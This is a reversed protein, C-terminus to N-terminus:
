AVAAVDNVIHQASVFRLECARCIHGRLIAGAETRVVARNRRVLYTDPSGCRPCDLSAPPRRSM